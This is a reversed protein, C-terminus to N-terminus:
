DGNRCTQIGYVLPIIWYKDKETQSIENLTIGVLNMWTVFSLIEKKKRKRKKTTKKEKEKDEEEEKKHSTGM